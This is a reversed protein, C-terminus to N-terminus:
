KSMNKMYERKGFFGNTKKPLLSISLVIYWGM